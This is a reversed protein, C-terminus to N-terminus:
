RICEYCHYHCIIVFKTEQNSMGTSLLIKCQNPLDSILNKSRFLVNQRLSLEKEPFVSEDRKYFTDQAM